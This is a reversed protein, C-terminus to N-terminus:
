ESIEGTLQRVIRTLSDASGFSGSKTVVVRGHALGGQIFGWPIGDCMEGRLLISHAGLTQLVFLATDGGTLILADPTHSAFEAMIVAEDGAEVAIQMAVHQPVAGALHNIQLSTVGHQSGFITMPRAARPKSEVRTSRAHFHVAALAKALGASGAFLIEPVDLAALAELDDQTSADCLLISALTALAQQAHDPSPVHVTPALQEFQALLPIQTVTGTADKIQLVGDRLTRGAAPFSPAFLIARTALAKHAALVEVAISGRGASDVKKFWLTRADTLVASAAESVADAAASSDLGRSATNFAQVSESCPHLALPGVWVRVQNDAALFATASDCAGTLDDALIRVRDFRPGAIITKSHAISATPVQM